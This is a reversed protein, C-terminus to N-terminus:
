TSTSSGTGTSASSGTRASRLSFGATGGTIITGIIWINTEKYDNKKSNEEKSETLCGRISNTNM